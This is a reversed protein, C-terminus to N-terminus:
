LCGDLGMGIIVDSMETIEEYNGWNALGYLFGGKEGEEVLDEGVDLRGCRM